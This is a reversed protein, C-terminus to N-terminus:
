NDDFPLEIQGGLLETEIKGVYLYLILERELEMIAENLEQEYPYPDDEDCFKTFPTNINMFKRGGVKRKCIITVGRSSDSGGWTVGTIATRSLMMKDKTTPEVIEFDANYEPVIYGEIMQAQMPHFKGVDQDNTIQLAHNALYMFTNRLDQTIMLPIAKKNNISVHPENDIFLHETYEVDLYLKNMIKASKFDVTVSLEGGVKEAIKKYAPPIFKLVIEELDEQLQLEKLSVTASNSM